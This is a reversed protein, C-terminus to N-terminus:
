AACAPPPSEAVSPGGPMAIVNVPKSVADCVQRIEELDTLGPAYLVDAGAAEFAELRALTDDLDRRGYLYNEARAAFVFPLSRAAEAAAQM